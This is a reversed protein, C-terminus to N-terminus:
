NVEVIEYGGLADAISGVGYVSTAGRALPKLRLELIIPNEPNALIEIKSFRNEAQITRLKARAGDIRISYEHWEKDAILKIVSGDNSEANEEGASQKKEGMFFVFVAKMRDVMGAIESAAEEVKLLSEDFLGLSLETSGQNALEEYQKKSLWLLSTDSLGRDGEPWTEPLGIKVSEGLSDSSIVGNRVVNEFVPEPSKPADEGVPSQAYKTEYAERAKISEATERKSTTTWELLVSEGAKWEKVTVIKDEFEGGMLSVIRGGIGFVTPRLIIQDGNKISFLSAAEQPSLDSVETSVCGVGVFILIISALLIKM